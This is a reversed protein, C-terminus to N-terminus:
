PLQYETGAISGPESKRCYQLAQLVQEPKVVTKYTITQEDLVSETKLNREAVDLLKCFARTRRLPCDAEDDFLREVRWHLEQRRLGVGHRYLLLMKDALLPYQDHRGRLLRDARAQGASFNVIAHESTLMNEVWCLESSTRSPTAADAIEPDDCTRRTKVSLKTSCRAPPEAKGCCGGSGSAHRGPPGRVVLFLQWKRTRCM